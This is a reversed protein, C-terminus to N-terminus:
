VALARGDAVRLLSAAHLPVSAASPLSGRGDTGRRRPDASASSEHEGKRQTQANQPLLKNPCCTRQGIRVSCCKKRALISTASAHRSQVRRAASHLAISHVAVLEAKNGSSPLGKEKLLKQLEAVKLKTLEAETPM